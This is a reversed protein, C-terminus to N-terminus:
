SQPATLLTNFIDPWSPSGWGTANDWGRTARYYLNDGSVVDHFPKNRGPHNAVYYITDPGYYYGQTRALLGQNMLVMGAAWIPAAASTGGFALWRGQFLVPINIAAAAVDPLQRNGNTYQNYTGAGSQYQPRQFAKSVGGGSGWANQCKTLDTRDSWVKEDLRNGSFMMRTGGVSVVSPSSAPFQVDPSGNYTGDSFAGCDGSSIFVTMHEAKTLISLQQNIAQFVDQTLYAEPAGMSISVVSGTHTNQSNNDIVAQLAQYMANWSGAQSGDQQYDVIKVNPALGAIMDIDLTTEGQAAPASGLAVTQLQIHSGTCANYGAIDQPDFGDMEVLNVTMGDGRWGQQWFRNVGYANAVKTNTAAEPHGSFNPCGAAKAPALAPSLAPVVGKKLPTSYDDLGTIALIYGAIEKPVKPMHAPDPTFFPRGNLKHNVFKTQLLQGALSAKADFSVTTKTKSPTVQINGSAFYDKLKNLDADSVGLKQALDGPTASGAKFKAGLQNLMADSVKLAVSVHLVKDGPVDGTVPANLAQQPLGLTLTTTEGSLGQTAPKHKLGGGCGSAAIALAAVISAVRHKRM